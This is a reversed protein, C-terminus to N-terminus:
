TRTPLAPASGDRLDVCGDSSFLDEEKSSVLRQRKFSLCQLMEELPNCLIMPFLCQRSKPSGTMKASAQEELKDFAVWYEELVAAFVTFEVDVFLFYMLQLLRYEKARCNSQASCRLSKVSEVAASEVTM